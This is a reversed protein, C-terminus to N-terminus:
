AALVPEQGPILQFSPTSKAIELEAENRHDWPRDVGDSRRATARWGWPAGQRSLFLEVQRLGADTKPVALHEGPHTCLERTGEDFHDMLYRSWEPLIIGDSQGHIHLTPTCIPTADALLALLKPQKATKYGAALVAFRFTGPPLAAVLLSSTAAGMSYGWLGDYPGHALIARKVLALTSSWKVESGDDAEGNDTAIWSRGGWADPAAHPGELCEFQVRGAFRQHLQQLSQAM